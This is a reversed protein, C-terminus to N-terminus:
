SGSAGARLSALTVPLGRLSVAHARSKSRTRSGAASHASTLKAAPHPTGRRSPRLPRRARGRLGGGLAAGVKLTVSVQAHSRLRSSAPSRRPSKMVGAHHLPDTLPVFAGARLLRDEASSRQGSGAVAAQPSPHHSHPGLRPASGRPCAGSGPM